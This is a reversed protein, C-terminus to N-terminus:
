RAPFPAPYVMRVAKRAEPLAEGESKRVEIVPGQVPRLRWWPAGDPRPGLAGTTEADAARAATVALVSGALAGILLCVRAAPSVRHHPIAFRRSVAPRRPMASRRAIM